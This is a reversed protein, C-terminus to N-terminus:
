VRPSDKKTQQGDFIARHRRRMTCSTSISKAKMENEEALMDDDIHAHNGTGDPGVSPGKSLRTEAADCGTPGSRTDTRSSGPTTQYQEM